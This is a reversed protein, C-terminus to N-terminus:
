GAGPALVAQGNTAPEPEELEEEDEEDSTESFRQTIEIAADQLAWDEDVSMTAHLYVTRRKAPFADKMQDLITQPSEGSALQGLFSESLEKPLGWIEYYPPDVTTMATEAGGDEELGARFFIPGIKYTAGDPTPAPWPDGVRLIKGSILEVQTVLSLM